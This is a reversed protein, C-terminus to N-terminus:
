DKNLIRMLIDSLDYDLVSELEDLSSDGMAYGAAREKLELLLSVWQDISNPLVLNHVFCTRTQSIRHIRDQSQLYDDLSFGRDFYIVHNAVTLTLGEKAAAPTAVLVRVDENNKFNSIAAHRRGMDMKGHLTVAGYEILYSKLYNANDVFSTWIIAKEGSEMVKSLLEILCPVKGPINKYSEDVLAPNSAIQVLRLMRKLISESDDEILVGDKVVELLLERRVTEYMEAQLPEWEAETQQYRKSPLEIGSSAKTLRVTFDAIAPMVKELSNIFKVRNKEDPLDLSKKFKKFDKGLSLGHDLFNIQSWIDYPRNAIPTGTMIVRKVFYDSVRLFSETLGSEPNKIKQSEDLIIGVRRMKCFIRLKEEELKIAEYNAIYIRSPSLMAAHNATRNDSLVRPHIHSHFSFEELWNNVLGKKTIILATDIQNTRLWHLSLDIAVKTKGLGQELFIASYELDKVSDFTERQYEFAKTKEELSASKMLKLSM